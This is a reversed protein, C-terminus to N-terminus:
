SYCIKFDTLGTKRQIKGLESDGTIGVAHDKKSLNASQLSGANM